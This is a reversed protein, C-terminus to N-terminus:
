PTSESTMNSPSLHAYYTVKSIFLSNPSFKPKTNTAPSCSSPQQLSLFSLYILGDVVTEVGRRGRECTIM